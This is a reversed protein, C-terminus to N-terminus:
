FNGKCTAGRSKMYCVMDANKATSHRHTIIIMASSTKLKQISKGIPYETEADLASTVGDFASIEISVKDQSFDKTVIAFLDQGSESKFECM